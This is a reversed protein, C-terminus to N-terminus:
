LHAVGIPFPVQLPSQLLVLRLEIDPLQPQLLRCLGDCLLILPDIALGTLDAVEGVLHRALGFFQFVDHLRGCFLRRVILYHPLDLLALLALREEPLAQDGDQLDVAELVTRLDAVASEAADQLRPALFPLSSDRDLDADGLVLMAVGM